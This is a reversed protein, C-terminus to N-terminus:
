FYKKIKKVSYINNFNLSDSNLKADLYMKDKLKINANGYLKESNASLEANDIKLNDEGVLIASLYLENIKLSVQLQFM